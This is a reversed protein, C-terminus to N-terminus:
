RKGEPLSVPIKVYKQLFTLALNRSNRSGTRGNVSAKGDKVRKWFFEGMIIHPCIKDEPMIENVARVNSLVAIEGAKDSPISAFWAKNPVYSLLKIGKSELENRRKITPIEKLQILVHAKEPVAEIKEKAVTSIGPEPVFRRSKLLVEESPYVISTHVLISCLIGRVVTIKM